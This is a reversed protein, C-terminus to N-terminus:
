LYQKIEEAREQMIIRFWATYNEPNNTMDAILDDWKMYKWGGVEDPNPNPADNYVGTMVHDFEHETMGKDLEARYIFAFAYKLDVEFGMEERLRRKGASILDEGDRPHSCCTNTWLGGSHYKSDARQQLLVEGKDNVVFVSFARHLLGKEHAEMKEMLGMPQDQTDVLIVKEEVKDCKLNHNLTLIFSHFDIYYGFNM